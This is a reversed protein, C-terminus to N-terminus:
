GIKLQISVNTGTLNDGLITIEADDAYISQLKEVSLQLGKGKQLLEPLVASGIGPGNDSVVITLTNNIETISIRLLGDSKIKFIGHKLANEVIPQLLMFPVEILDPPTSTQINVRCEFDIRLKELDCYRKVLDLEDTLPVLKKDANKLVGRLLESFSVLYTNADKNNNSSVLMQISNLANFLFHPNLQSQISKLKLEQILQKHKQQKRYTRIVILLVLGICVLTGIIWKGVLFIANWLAENAEKQTTEIASKIQILVNKADNKQYGGRPIGYSKNYVVEGKDDIVLLSPMRIGKIAPNQLYVKPHLIFHRQILDSAGMKEKAISSAYEFSVIDVKPLRDKIDAVLFNDVVGHNFYLLTYKGRRPLFSVEKENEDPLTKFPLIAGVSMRKISAYKEEIGKKLIPDGCQNMFTKYATSLDYPVPNRNMSTTLLINAQYYLLVNNLFKNIQVIQTEIEASSAVNINFKTRQRFFFNVMHLHLKNGHLGPSYHYSKLYYFPLMTMHMSDLDNTKNCLANQEDVNLKLNLYAIFERDMNTQYLDARTYLKHRNLWSSNESGAIQPGNNTLTVTIQDQPQAYIYVSSDNLMFIPIQVGFKLKYMLTVTNDKLENFLQLEDENLCSLNEPYTRIWNAYKITDKYQATREDIITITATNPLAFSANYIALVKQRNEDEFAYALDNELFSAIYNKSQKPAYSSSSHQEFALRGDKLPTVKSANMELHLWDTENKLGHTKFILQAVKQVYLTTSWMRNSSFPKSYEGKSKILPFVPQGSFYLPSKTSMRSVKIDNELVTIKGKLLKREEDITEDFYDPYWSDFVYLNKFRSNSLNYTSRITKFRLIEYDWVAKSSADVGVYTFKISILAARDPYIEDPVWHNRFVPLENEFEMECEFWDGKKLDYTESKAYVINLGSVAIVVFIILQKM